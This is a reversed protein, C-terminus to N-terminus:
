DSAAAIPKLEAFWAGVEVLTPVPGKHSTAVSVEGLHKVLTQPTHKSLSRRGTVGAAVLLGVYKPGVGKMRAMRSMSIMHTLQEDSIGASAAVQVRRAEDNWVHMLDNTTEIGSERLKAAQDQDIGKLDSLKYNM